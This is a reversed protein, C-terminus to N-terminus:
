DSQPADTVLTREVLERRIPGGESARRIQQQHLHSIAEGTNRFVPLEEMFILLNDLRYLVNRGRQIFPPGNGQCRWKELTRHSLNLVYAAEKTTLYLPTDSSATKYNV